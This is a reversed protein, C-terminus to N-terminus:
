QQNACGICSGWDTHCNRTEPVCTATACDIHSPCANHTACEQSPPPCFETGCTGRASMCGLVTTAGQVQGAETKTLQSIHNKNLSLRPLQIQKKKM